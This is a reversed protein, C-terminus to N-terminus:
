GLDSTEQRMHQDAQAQKALKQMITNGMQQMLTIIRNGIKTLYAMNCGQTQSVEKANIKRAEKITKQFRKMTANRLLETKEAEAKKAVELPDGQIRRAWMSSTESRNEAEWAKFEDVIAAETQPVCEQIESDSDNLARIPYSNQLDVTDPTSGNNIEDHLKKRNAKEKPLKLLNQSM